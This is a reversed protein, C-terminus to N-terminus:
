KKLDSIKILSGAPIHKKFQLIKENCIAHYKKFPRINCSKIKVDFDKKIQNIKLELKEVKKAIEIKPHEVGSYTWKGCDWRYYYKKGKILKTTVGRLSNYVVRIDDKIDDMKKVLFNYRIQHETDKWDILLIM